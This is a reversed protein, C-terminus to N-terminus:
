PRARARPPGHQHHHKVARRQRDIRQGGHGRPAILDGEGRRRAVAHRGGALDDLLRQPRAGGDIAQRGSQGLPFADHEVGPCALAEAPEQDPTVQNGLSGRRRGGDHPRRHSQRTFLKAFPVAPTRGSSASISTPARLRPRTGATRLRPETPWASRPGMASRASPSSRSVPKTRASLSPSASMLLLAKEVPQAASASSAASRSSPSASTAAARSRSANAALRLM